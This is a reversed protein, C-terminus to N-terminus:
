YHPPPTEESASAVNPMGLAGIRERLRELERRLRDIQHQQDVLAGNLAQITQEQFALRTELEIIRQKM